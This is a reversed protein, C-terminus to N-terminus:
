EFYAVMMWIAKEQAEIYSGMLAVTAEDGIEAADASIQRELQIFYKQTELVNKLAQDGDSVLATEKIKAAKLYDSFNHKPTEGLMLLREAIEDIKEATDNYM